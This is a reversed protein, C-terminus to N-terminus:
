IKRFFCSRNGTHCAVGVQRVKILLADMDCDYSLTKVFQFHGSTMGQGWYEKRSRSWFCTKGLKITRWLKQLSHESAGRLRHWESYTKDDQSRFYDENGMLAPYLGKILSIKDWLTLFNTQLGGVVEAWPSPLNAKKFASQKGNQEAYILAHEKWQYNKSAGVRELYKQLQQYGGFVIHLGSEISDGDSDKWVSVKGGLIKRKEYIEVTHGRDVLEVAACLGAVGAGFIAIKM